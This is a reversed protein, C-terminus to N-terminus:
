NIYDANVQCNTSNIFRIDSNLKNKEKYGIADISLTTVNIKDYKLTIFTLSKIIILRPTCPGGIKTVRTFYTGAVVM